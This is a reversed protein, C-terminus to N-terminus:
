HNNLLKFVHANRIGEISLSKISKQQAELIALLSDPIAHGHGECIRVTLESLRMQAFLKKDWQCKGLSESPGIPRCKPSVVSLSKLSPYAVLPITNLLSSMTFFFM